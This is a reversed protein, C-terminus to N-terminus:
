SSGGPATPKSKEEVSAFVIEMASALVHAVEEVTPDAQIKQTERAVAKAMLELVATVVTIEIGICDQCCEAAKELKQSVCEVVARNVNSFRTILREM